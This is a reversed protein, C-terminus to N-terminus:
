EVSDNKEPKFSIRGATTRRANWVETPKVTSSHVLFLVGRINVKLSDALFVDTSCWMSFINSEQGFASLVVASSM